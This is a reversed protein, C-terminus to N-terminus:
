SRSINFCGGESKAASFHMADKVSKWSGGWGLCHKSAIEKINSPMDTILTSGYPNQDANIDLAAGYSHFSSVASNAISRVNYGGMDKIIYGIADLDDILGQFNSQYLVNVKATVGTKSRVSVLTLENTDSVKGVIFRVKASVDPASNYTYFEIAAGDASMVLPGKQIQQKTPIAAQPFVKNWAYLTLDIATKSGVATNTDILQVIQKAGVSPTIEAYIWKDSQNGDIIQRIAAKDFGNGLLRALSDLNMAFGNNIKGKDLKSLNTNNTKGENILRKYANYSNPPIYPVNKTFASKGVETNSDTTTDTTFRNNELLATYVTLEGDGGQGPSRFDFIPTVFSNATPTQTQRNGSGQVSLNSQQDGGNNGDVVQGFSTHYYIKGNAQNPIPGKSVSSQNQQPDYPNYRVSQQYRRFCDGMDAAINGLLSSAVESLDLYSKIDPTYRYGATNARLSSGSQAKAILTPLDDQVLMTLSESWANKGILKLNTIGQQFIVPIKNFITSDIGGTFTSTSNRLAGVPLTTGETAFLAGQALKGVSNSVPAFLNCPSNLCDKVANKLSDIFKGTASSQGNAGPIAGGRLRNLNQFTYNIRRIEPIFVPYVEMKSKYFELSTVDLDTSCLILTNTFHERAIANGNIAQNFSIALDFDLALRPNDLSSARDSPNASDDLLDCFPSQYKIFERSIAYGFLKEHLNHSYIIM